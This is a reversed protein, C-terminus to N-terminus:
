LPRITGHNEHFGRKKEASKRACIAEFKDSHYGLHYQKNGDYITAKWRGMYENFTVGTTGSTNNSQLRKNKCNEAATVPRLNSWKNNTGCGDIHDLQNTPWEGNIYFYALRHAQYHKRFVKIKIYSKSFKTTSVSGARDGAKVLGTGYLWTFIGTDRCYHIKAKLKDQTFM